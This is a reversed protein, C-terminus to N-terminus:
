IPFQTRYQFTAITLAATANLSEQQSNIPISVRTCNKLNEPVGQGEEGVVIIANKSFKFQSIDKGGQDVVLLRQHSKFNKISPGAEIKHDFINGSIARISRPHLPHASEKTIVVRFNFALATRLAAGLNLPNQFPCVVTPAANEFDWEPFQPAACVLLPYDIGFMNLEDFLPKTLFLTEGESLFRNLRHAEGVQEQTALIYRANLHSAHLTEQIPKKGFVFFM